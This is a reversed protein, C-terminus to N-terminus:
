VGAPLTEMEGRRAADMHLPRIPTTRHFWCLADYREGLRTPVFNRHRDLDPDYVVGIARHGRETGLWDADAQDSFIFLNRDLGAKEILKEVSDPRPPPVKMIEM